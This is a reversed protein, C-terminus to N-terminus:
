IAGGCFPARNLSSFILGRASRTNSQVASSDIKTQLYNESQDPSPYLLTPKTTSSYISQLCVINPSHAYQEHVSNSQWYSVTM